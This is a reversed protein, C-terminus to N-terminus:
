SGNRELRLGKVGEDGGEERVMASPGDAASVGTAEVSFPSVTKGDEVKTPLQTVKVLASCSGRLAGEPKELAHERRGTNPLSEAAIITSGNGLSGIENGMNKSSKQRSM